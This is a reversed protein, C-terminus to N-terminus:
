REFEIPIPSDPPLEYWQQEQQKRLYEKDIKRTEAMIQSTTPKAKKFTQHQGFFDLDVWGLTGEKNKAIKLLRPDTRGPKGQEEVNPYLLFIIDADQEIQGSERLSSMTPEASTKKDARSLQSLALVTMSHRQAMTHLGMSIETVIEYRSKGSGSVLGLYDVIVIEYRRSIALAQIDDVTMGAANVLEIKRSGVEDGRRALKEFDEATMRNRKIQSMELNMAAAMQRDFLKAASTEFSFFGVRKTRAWHWAFQLALASKGASPYGGLIIFDGAEVYLQDDLGEFPWTLYKKDGQHRRFFDSFAQEMTVVRSSVQESMCENVKGVAAKAKELNDAAAMEAGYAKLSRLRSQERCVGIYHDLNAATPTVDMAQILFQTYESGLENNVLVIDADQGQRFLKRIADYVKSCPPQFDSATTETLMHATLKPELLVSGIVAVQADLWGQNSDAM